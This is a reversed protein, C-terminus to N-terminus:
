EEDEEEEEEEEDRPTGGVKDLVNRAELIKAKKDGGDRRMRLAVGGSQAAAVSRLCM